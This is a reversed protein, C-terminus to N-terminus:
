KIKKLFNIAEDEAIFLCELCKPCCWELEIANDYIQEQGYYVLENNKINCWSVSDIKEWHKLENIEKKCKPCKTM